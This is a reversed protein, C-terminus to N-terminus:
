LPLAPHNLTLSWEASMPASRLRLSAREFSAEATPTFDSGYTVLRIPRITRSDRVRLPHFM